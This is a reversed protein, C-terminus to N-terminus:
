QEPHGSGFRIRLAVVAKDYVLTMVSSGTETSYFPHRFVGFDSICIFIM